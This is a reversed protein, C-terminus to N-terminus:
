IWIFLAILAFIIAISTSARTGTTLRAAAILEDMKPYFGAIISREISLGSGACRIALLIHTAIAKNRM